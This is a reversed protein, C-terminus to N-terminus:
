GGGETYVCSLMVGCAPTSNWLTSLAVGPGVWTCSETQLICIQNIDDGAAMPGKLSHGHATLIRLLLSQKCIPDLIQLWKARPCDQKHVEVTHTIIILLYHVVSSDRDPSHCGSGLTSELTGVGQHMHGRCM